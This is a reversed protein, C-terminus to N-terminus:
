VPGAFVVPSSGEPSGGVWVGRGPTWSGARLRWYHTWKGPPAPLLPVSDSPCWGCLHTPKQSQRCFSFHNTPYDAAMERWVPFVPTASDLGTILSGKMQVWHLVSKVQRQLCSLVLPPFTSHSSQMDDLWFFARFASCVLLSFAANTLASCCSCSISCRIMWCADEAIECLLEEDEDAEEDSFASCSTDWCSFCAWALADERWWWWALRPPFMMWWWEM